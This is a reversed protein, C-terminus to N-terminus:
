AEFRTAIYQENNVISFGTTPDTADDTNPWRAGWATSRSVTLVSTNGPFAGVKYLITYAFPWLTFSGGALSTEDIQIQGFGMVQNSTSTAGDAIKSLLPVAWCVACDAGEGELGTFTYPVRRVSNSSSAAGGSVTATVVTGDYYTREVVPYQNVVTTPTSALYSTGVGGVTLSSELTLTSGAVSAVVVNDSNGGDSVTLNFGAEIGTASVVTISTDGYNADAALETSIGAQSVDSYQFAGLDFYAFAVSSSSPYGAVTAEYLSVVGTSTDIDSAWVTERTGTTHDHLVIRQGHRGGNAAANLFDNNVTCTISTAGATVDAALTLPRNPSDGGFSWSSLSTPTGGSGSLTYGQGAYACNVFEVTQGVATGTSGYTDGPQPGCLVGVWTILVLDYGSINTYEFPIYVRTPLQITRATVSTGGGGGGGGQAVSVSVGSDLSVAVPSEVVSVNTGDDTSTATIRADETTVTTTAPAIEVSVQEPV